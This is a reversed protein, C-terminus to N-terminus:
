SRAMLQGSVVKDPMPLEPLRNESLLLGERFYAAAVKPEGLGTLLRGLEACIEASHELRYSSEFYDRAKGWLRDRASLRGLCLLLQADETHDALWSEARTLRRAVEGEELLGFQRVLAPDWQAKLGKLILKEAADHDGVAILQGVYASVMSPDQKLYSPVKQWAARLHETASAMTTSTSNLRQAHVERELLEFQQQSMEGHKKLDPLLVLLSDWDNVGAYSQRLLNLANPYKSIKNRVDELTIQAQRFEGAQLQIEARTISVAAEADPQADTASQLYERVKDPEQLKESSRAALLYNVLPADNKDAGRLLQRRAASWNGETFSIVGRTSNRIAAATQRDDFWSFLSKRGDLLRYILRLTYYIAFSALALLVIGVWLSTELTRRGYSVLIYGPDTEILAILGVGLLLAILVLAFIRRM